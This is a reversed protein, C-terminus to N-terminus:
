AKLTESLKITITKKNSSITDFAYSTNFNGDQIASLRKQESEPYDLVTYDIPKNAGQKLLKYDLLQSDQIPFITNENSRIKISEQTPSDITAEKQFCEAQFSNPIDFAYTPFVVLISLLILLKKM